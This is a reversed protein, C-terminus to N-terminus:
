CFMDGCMTDTFELTVGLFIVGLKEQRGARQYHQYSVNAVARTGMRVGVGAGIVPRIEDNNRNESASYIDVEEDSSGSETAETRVLGTVKLRSKNMDVVYAVGAKVYGFFPHLPLHAKGLVEVGFLNSTSRFDVTASALKKDFDTKPNEFSFTVPRNETTIDTSVFGAFEVGFFSKFHYGGFMRVLYARDEVDDLLGVQHSPTSLKTFFGELSSVDTFTFNSKNSAITNFFDNFKELEKNTFTSNKDITIREVRCHRNTGCNEIDNNSIYADVASIVNEFDVDTGQMFEEYINERTTDINIVGVEAGGYFGNKSNFIFPTSDAFAPTSLAFAVLPIALRTLATAKKM